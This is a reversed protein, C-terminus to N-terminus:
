EPNDWHAWHLWLTRSFPLSNQSLSCLSSLRLVCGPTPPKSSALPQGHALSVLRGWVISFAFFHSWGQLMWFLICRAPVKRSRQGMYSRQAVYVYSLLNTTLWENQLLRYLLWLFSICGDNYLIVWPVCFASIAKRKSCQGFGLSVSSLSFLSWDLGGQRTGGPSQARSVTNISVGWYDCGLISSFLICQQWSPFPFLFKIQKECLPLNQNGHDRTTQICYICRTWKM